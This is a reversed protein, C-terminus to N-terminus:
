EYKRKLKFAEGRPRVKWSIPKGVPTTAGKKIAQIVEDVQPDAEILTYAAGIELAYHSDSGAVQPLGLQTALKRGMYVSFYFPFAVSNIVEIADFHSTIITRPEMGKLLGIPHAAVAIGGSKRIQQVTESPSLNTSIPATIGLALVHGRQTTVEVGPIILLDSRKALITAGSLIDHDTIAVGDLGRKKSYAVVEKLTTVGDASYCTHVHLDVKLPLNKV